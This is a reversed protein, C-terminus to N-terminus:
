IVQVPKESATSCKGTDYGFLLGGITAFCALYYVFFPTKEEATNNGNSDGDGPKKSDKVYGNLEMDSLTFLRRREDDSHRTDSSHATKSRFESSTNQPDTLKGTPNQPKQTKTATKILPPRLEDGGSIEQQGLLLKLRESDQTNSEQQDRSNPLTSNQHTSQQTPGPISKEQQGLRTRSSNSHNKNKGRKRDTSGVGTAGSQNASVVNDLNSNKQRHVSLPGSSGGPSAVASTPTALESSPPSEASALTADQSSISSSLPLNQSGPHPEKVNAM